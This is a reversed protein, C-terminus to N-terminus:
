DLGPLLGQDVMHNRVKTREAGGFARFPEATFDEWIGLLPVACKLGKTFTTM